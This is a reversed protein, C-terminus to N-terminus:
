EEPQVSEKGRVTEFIAKALIPFAVNQFEPDDMYRTVMEDNEGLRQVMFEEILKRIGLQFKDLPNALATQIVQPNKSAKERIQEFFLRDEETFNTAFRENLLQIIEPLPVKDDKAKGTGVETPSKVGEPDGQGLTIQGSYTRQLRYYELDVEDGLKVRELDRDLLLRPLLSRGFSYLMELAPDGYPMIQSLFAYISVYGRLKERFDSRREEDEMAKFRDVAPQLQRQMHAHDAAGQKEPPRYFVRAYAEVESWFYVQAADLEHKLTELQQPDSSEQLSTADYYPRFAKYIDEAENVFDLVFPDQKGPIKRNLRSLAQVAQVGDLRRDVYMAQLLPQDFGTQYKNPVLLIQYDPSNFREPLQKESIPKGSVCDTNMGPETYELGTEPDRVTGSFAVLSHVDTYGNEAIYREFTQMYRVAHLRSSTVVMAKARGGLHSRVKQRFHEVMVETKQEINHPHLSMFKALARAAKKKPLNPDDEVAKVLRYYTAYTTYNRVVDLIFGEEIAQRMSYLHFAEPMGSPGTQGFLELTKGKPTATFAFFSLNPQRGHLEVVQNLRDEWDPEDEGNATQGAAGLIAKLELATDGSQSSHAEDVIIAYRRKAIEAEWAKAQMREEETPQERRETGAAHLLGRLVFPFKQLTTVVIKTGDILAAALQDSDQDIARVVGQAHEIQYIADQLQRDLVQRDTIVVVCDFTKQDTASHLSALRHSLWSISNTKGSGASHQILYNRGPGEDRAAAVLKRVADLQHYRPFIMTQKTVWRHSGRGDDVKEEKKELFMFHGLIDLFSDFQLVEEWFYGTRYGSEHQPNGEGCIIRGPHSGRNFPLFVTKEGALRTTMHIEDTDAAFHVLARKKFDFLPARPDRDNEYQRVAHRWSQGTGPNKLEITAVPLGNVALVMDLTRNDGPHCPVQRTVTLLNQAFLKLVEPNAEHAPQFYGLRFTKGYFKFGHRLVHLSGKADLEKVLTNLLLLELGTAHLGKMEAWLKSQTERLFAFVHAPFLARERDWEANSGSRWGGKTLLIEEVYTEFAIETTQSPM